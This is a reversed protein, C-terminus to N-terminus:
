GLGPAGNRQNTQESEQEQADTACQPHSTCLLRTKIGLLPGTLNVALTRNWAELTTNVIGQRAITGANNVLIHLDGYASLTAAVIERWSEESAADQVRFLARGGARSLRNALAEGRAADIDTLMVAAGERVFLEAEATGQGGAAGTILAVKNALKPM